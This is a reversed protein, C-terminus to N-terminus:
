PVLTRAPATFANGTAFGGSVISASTLNLPRSAILDNGVVRATPIRKRLWNAFQHLFCKRLDAPRGSFGCIKLGACNERRSPFVRLPNRDGTEPGRLKEGERVFSVFHIKHAIRPRIEVGFFKQPGHKDPRLKNIRPPSNTGPGAVPVGALTKV